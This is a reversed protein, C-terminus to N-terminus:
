ARGSPSKSRLQFTYSYFLKLRDRRRNVFVYLGGALPDRGLHEQVLSFLGDFGKRMDTPKVYFYIKAEAPLALM